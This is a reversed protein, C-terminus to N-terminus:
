IYMPFMIRKLAFLLKRGTEVVTFHLMDPHGDSAPPQQSSGAPLPRLSPELLLYLLPLPRRWDACAQLHGLEYEVQVCCGSGAKSSACAAVGGLGEQAEERPCLGRKWASVGVARSNRLSHVRVGWCSVPLGAAERKSCCRSM